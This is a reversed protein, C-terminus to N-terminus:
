GGGAFFGRWTVDVLFHTLTPAALNGSRRFAEGYAIGAITALLVYRWDPPGNNLHSLGFLVSALGVALWTSAGARALLGQMAGRFLAEEPLAIVILTSFLFLAWGGGTRDSVGPAAFGTALALPISVVLFAAWAALGVTWERRRVPILAGLDFIPRELMYLLLLLDLGLMRLLVFDGTVWKLEIPLWLLLVLPLDAWRPRPHRRSPASLTLVALVYLAIAPLHAPEGRALREMAMVGILGGGALWRFAARCAAQEAARRWGPLALLVVPLFLLLFALGRATRELPPGSLLWALTAVLLGVAGALAGGAVGDSRTLTSM